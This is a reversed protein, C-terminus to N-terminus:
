FALLYGRFERADQRNFLFPRWEMQWPLPNRSMNELMEFLGDFADVENGNIFSEAVLTNALTDDTSYEIALGVTGIVEYERIAASPIRNEDSIATSSPIYWIKKVRSLEAHAEAIRERASSILQLGDDSRISPTFGLVRLRTWTSRSVM